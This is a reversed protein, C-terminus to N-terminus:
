TYYQTLHIFSGESNCMCEQRREQVFFSILLLESVPCGMLWLTKRISLWLQEVKHNLKEPSSRYGELGDEEAQWHLKRVAQWPFTYSQIPTSCRRSKWICTLGSLAAELQDWNNGLHILFAKLLSIWLAWPSYPYSWLSTLISGKLTQRETAVKIFASSRVSNYQSSLESKWAISLINTKESETGRPSNSIPISCYSSVYLIVAVFASIYAAGLGLRSYWVSCACIIDYSDRRSM